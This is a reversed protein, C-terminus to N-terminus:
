MGAKIETSITNLGKHISGIFSGVRKLAEKRTVTTAEGAQRILDLAKEVYESNRDCLQEIKKDIRRLEDKKVQRLAEIDAAIVDDVATKLNQLEQLEAKLEEASEVKKAKEAAQKKAEEQARALYQQARDMVSTSM